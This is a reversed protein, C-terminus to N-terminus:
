NMIRNITADAITHLIKSHKETTECIFNEGTRERYLDYPNYIISYVIPDEHILKFINGRSIEIPCAEKLRLYSTDYDVLLDTISIFPFRRYVSTRIKDFIESFVGSPPVILDCEKLTKRKKPDVGCWLFFESAQDLVKHDITINTCPTNGNVILIVRDNRFGYKNMRDLYEEIKAIVTSKKLTYHDIAGAKIMEFQDLVIRSTAADILDVLDITIIKKM